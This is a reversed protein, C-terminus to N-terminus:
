RSRRERLTLIPVDAGGAVLCERSWARQPNVAMRVRSLFRELAWVGPAAFREAHSAVHLSVLPAAVVIVRVARGQPRSNDMRVPQNNSGNNRPGQKTEAQDKKRQGRISQSSCQKRCPMVIRQNQSTNSSSRKRGKQQSRPHPSIMCHALLFTLIQPPPYPEHNIEKTSLSAHAPHPM